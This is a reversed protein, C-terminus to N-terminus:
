VGTEQTIVVSHAGEGVLPCVLIAIDRSSGAASVRYRRALRGSDAGHQAVGVRHCDDVSVCVARGLGQRGTCGCRCDGQVWVAVEVAVADDVAGVGVVVAVAPDIRSVVERGVRVLPHIGVAVAGAVVLVGVVVVIAYCVRRVVEWQVCALLPVSVAVAEAM